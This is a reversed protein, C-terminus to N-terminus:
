WIAKCRKSTQKPGSNGARAEAKSHGSKRAIAVNPLCVKSSQKPSHWGKVPQLSEGELISAIQAFDQRQMDNYHGAIERRFVVNWMLPSLM